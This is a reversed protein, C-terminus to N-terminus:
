GYPWSGTGTSSYAELWDDVTPPSEPPPPSGRVKAMHEMKALEQDVTWNSLIGVFEFPASITADNEPNPEWSFKMKLYRHNIFTFSLEFAGDKRKLVEPSGREPPRFPGFDFRGSGLYVSGYLTKAEKCFCPRMPEIRPGHCHEFLAVNLGHFAHFGLPNFYIHDQWDSCFLWFKQNALSEIGITEGEGGAECLSRYAPGVEEEKSRDYERREDKEQRKQRKRKDRLKRLDHYLPADM